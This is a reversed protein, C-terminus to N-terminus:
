EQSSELHSSPEWTLADQQEESVPIKVRFADDRYGTSRVQSQATFPSSTSAYTSLVLTQLFEILWRCFGLWIPIEFYISSKFGWRLDVATEVEALPLRDIPHCDGELPGQTRKLCVQRKKEKKPWLQPTQVCLLQLDIINSM